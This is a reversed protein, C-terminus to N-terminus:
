QLIPLAFQKMAVRQALKGAVEKFRQALVSDPDSVVIPDGGDGGVRAAPNLPIKGLVPFNFKAALGDACEKM